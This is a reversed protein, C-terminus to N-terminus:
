FLSAFLDDQVHAAAKKSQEQVHVYINYTMQITSHGIWAQVTKVDVGNEIMRTAFTHRLAHFGVQTINARMCTQYHARQVNRASLPTGVESCFVYRDKNFEARGISLALESQAVKHDQLVNALIKSIPITRIGQKTKPSQIITEWRTEGNEHIRTEKLSANVKIQMAKLDVKDWTLALIEGIRMGTFLATLLLPRYSSQETAQIYAKQQELTLIEIDKVEKTSRPLNIGQMPNKPILDNKVAGDFFKNLLLYIKKIYSKSLENKKNIYPQLHYAKIEKLKMKAIKDNFIHNRCITDYSDFTTPRVTNKIFDNLYKKGWQELTIVDDRVYGGNIIIDNQLALLKVRLQERDKDYISKRIQTGNNSYGITVAACWRGDKRQYISGDGNAARKIKRKTKPDDTNKKM